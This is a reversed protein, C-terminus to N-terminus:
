SRALCRQCFSFRWCANINVTKRLYQFSRSKWDMLEMGNRLTVRIVMTFVGFAFQIRQIEPLYDDIIAIRQELFERFM